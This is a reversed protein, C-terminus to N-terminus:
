FSNNASQQSNSSLLQKNTPYYLRTKNAGSSYIYDVEGKRKLIFLCHKVSELNLGLQQALFLATQNPSIQLLALIKKRNTASPLSHQNLHTIRNPNIALPFALRFPASALAIAQKTRTIEVLFWTKDRYEWVAVLAYYDHLAIAPYNFQRM